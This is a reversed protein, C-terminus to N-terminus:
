LDQLRHRRTYRREPINRTRAVVRVSLASGGFLDGTDLSPQPGGPVAGGQRRGRVGGLQHLGEGSSRAVIFINLFTQHSCVWRRRGNTSHSSATRPPCSTRKAGTSCSSSTTASSATQNRSSACCRWCWPAVPATTAVVPQLIIDSVMQFMFQIKLIM